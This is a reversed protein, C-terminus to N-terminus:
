NTIFFHLVSVNLQVGACQGTEDVLIGTTPEKKNVWLTLDEYGNAINPKEVTVWNAKAAEESSRPLNVFAKKGWDLPNM